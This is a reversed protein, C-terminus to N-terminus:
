RQSPSAIIPKISQIQISALSFEKEDYCQRIHVKPRIVEVRSVTASSKPMERSYAELITGYVSHCPSWWCVTGCSSIAAMNTGAESSHTAHLPMCSAPITCIHFPRSPSTGREWKAEEGADGKRKEVNLCIPCSSDEEEAVGGSTDATAM